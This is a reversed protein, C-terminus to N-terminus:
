VVEERTNIVVLNDRGQRQQKSTYMIDKRNCMLIGPCNM